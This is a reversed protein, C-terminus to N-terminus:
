RPGGTISNMVLWCTAFGLAFGADCVTQRIALADEDDTDIEFQANIQKALEEIHSQIQTGSLHQGIEALVRKAGRYVFQQKSAEVLCAPVRDEGGVSALALRLGVPAKGVEVRRTARKTAKM